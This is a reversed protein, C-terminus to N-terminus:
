YGRWTWWHMQARRFLFGLRRPSWVKVLHYTGGHGDWTDWWPLDDVGDDCQGDSM